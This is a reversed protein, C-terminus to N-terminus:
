PAEILAMKGDRKRYLVHVVGKHNRFVFVERDRFEAEKVAEEITMPALAVSEQSRVIHPESIPKSSPFSHLVVPLTRGASKAGAPRPGADDPPILPKAKRPRPVADAAKEVNPQRKRTRERTRLRLAQKEAKEMASQLAQEADPGVGQGVITHYRCNITIEAIQSSREEKLTISANCNDGLVRAIREMGAESIAKIRKSINVQRGAYKTRM